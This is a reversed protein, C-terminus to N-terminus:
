LLMAHGRRPQHVRKSLASMRVASPGLPIQIRGLFLGECNTPFEVERGVTEMCVACDEATDRFELADWGFGGVRFWSGCGMCFDDSPFNSSPITHGCLEFNKCPKETVVGTMRSTPLKTHPFLHSSVPTLTMAFMIYEPGSYITGRFCYKQGIKLPSKREQLGSNRGATRSVLKMVTRAFESTKSQNARSCARANSLTWVATVFPNFNFPWLPPFFLFLARM